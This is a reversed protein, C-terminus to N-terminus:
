GGALLREGVAVLRQERKRISREREQLDRELADALGGSARDPVLRVGRQLENAGPLSSAISELHLLDDLRLPRRQHANRLVPSQAGRRTGSGGLGRKRIEVYSMQPLPFAGTRTIGPETRRCSVKSVHRALLDADDDDVVGIGG